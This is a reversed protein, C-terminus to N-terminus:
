STIRDSILTHVEYRHRGTDPGWAIELYVQYGEPVSDIRIVAEGRPLTELSGAEKQLSQEGQGVWAKLLSRDHLLEIQNEALLIARRYQKTLAISHEIQPLLSTVFIIVVSFIAIAVLAEFYGAGRNKALRGMM